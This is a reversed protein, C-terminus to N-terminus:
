NRKLEAIIKGRSIERRNNIEIIEYLRITFNDSTFIYTVGTTDNYFSIEDPLSASEEDITSISYRKFGMFNEVEGNVQFFVKKGQMNWEGAVLEKNVFYDLATIQIENKVIFNRFQRKFKLKKEESNVNITLELVTDKNEILYNLIYDDSITTRDRVLKMGTKGDKLEFFMLDFREGDNYNLQNVANFLTDGSLNSIDFAFQKLYIGKADVAMPSHLRGFTEIYEENVWAGKIISLLRQKELLPQYNGQNENAKLVKDKESLNCSFSVSIFFLFVFHKM